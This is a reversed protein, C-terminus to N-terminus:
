RLTATAVGAAPLYIALCNNSAGTVLWPHTLFTTQYYRTNPDLTKYLQRQGSYDLWFVERPTSSANIFRIVATTTGQSSRLSSEQSCDHPSLEASVIVHATGSIDRNTVGRYTAQIDAEGFGVATLFGASSVTAVGANSTTWTAQNDVRQVSGDAFTVNASLQGALGIAAFTTNGIIAMSTPGPAVNAQSTGTTGQSDSCPVTTASTGIPYEVTITGSFTIRFRSTDGDITGTCNYQAKGPVNRYTFAVGGTLSIALPTVALSNVYSFQGSLTINPDGQLVAGNWFCNTFTMQGNMGIQGSGSDSLAGDLSSAIGVAGGSLCSTSQLNFAHVRLLSSALPPFLLSVASTGPTVFSAVDAQTLTLAPQSVPQSPRTPLAGCSTVVLGAGFIGLIKFRM